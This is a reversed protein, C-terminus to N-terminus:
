PGVGGDRCEAVDRRERAEDNGHRVHQALAPGFIGVLGRRWRPVSAPAVLPPLPLLPRPAPGSPSGCAAIAAVAAVAAVAAIRHM